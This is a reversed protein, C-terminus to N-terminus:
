SPSNLHLVQDLIHYLLPLQLNFESDEYNDRITVGNVAAEGYSLDVIVRRKNSDKPRTMM